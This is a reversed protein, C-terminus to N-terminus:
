KKKMSKAAKSLMSAFGSPIKMGEVSEFPRNPIGAVLKETEDEIVIGEYLFSDLLLIVLDYKEMINQSDACSKTVCILSNYFVDLIKSLFIENTELDSSIFIITDDLNKYVVLRDNIITIEEKENKIKEFILPIDEKKHERKLLVKGTKDLIALCHVNQIDM